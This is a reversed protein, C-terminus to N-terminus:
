PRHRPIYARALMPHFYRSVAAAYLQMYPAFTAGSVSGRARRGEAFGGGSGEGGERRWVAVEPVVALRWYLPCVRRRDVCEHGVPDLELPHGWEGSICEHILFIYFFRM